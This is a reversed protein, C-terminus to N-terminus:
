KSMTEGKKNIEELIGAGAATVVSSKKLGSIEVRCEDTRRRLVEGLSKDRFHPAEPLVSKFGHRVAVPEYLIKM